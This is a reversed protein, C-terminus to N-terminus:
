YNFYYAGLFFVAIIAKFIWIVDLPFAKQSIRDLVSEQGLYYVKEGRLLNLVTDFGFWYVGLFAAFSFAFPRHNFYALIAALAITILANLWHLPRKGQKIISYNVWAALGIFILWTIM